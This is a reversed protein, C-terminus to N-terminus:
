PLNLNEKVVEEEVRFRSRHRDAETWPNQKVVLKGNNRDRSSKNRLSEESRIVSLNRQLCYIIVVIHSLKDGRDRLKSTLSSALGLQTAPRLPSAGLVVATQPGARYWSCCLDSAQTNEDVWMLM